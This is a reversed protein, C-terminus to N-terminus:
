RQLANIEVSLKIRTRIVVDTWRLVYLHGPEDCGLAVKRDLRRVEVLVQYVDDAHSVMLRPHM